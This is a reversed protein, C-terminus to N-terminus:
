SLEISEGPQLVTPNASTEQGVRQAWANPDQKIVEFTDYHIPVVQVPEILKIARIADDPGMTFNDGIPLIALDIGEEGILKMDYFLGTDCAHYIKKGQIYLLFGCPNGGYSGDPLSSGHHAITLKVRGWPYDFGGGIHQPHVTEVGQDALWNQIEFNSIIMAGTRKAIEVTDGLHDGHGHSVLIYDAEVDDAKVASLPNGTLFPDILIKAKETEILFCAHGLWTVKLAM